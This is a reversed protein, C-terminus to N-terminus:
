LLLTAAENCGASSLLKSVGCAYMYVRHKGEVTLQLTFSSAVRRDGTALLSGVSTESMIRQVKSNFLGERPDLQCDIGENCLREMQASTLQAGM